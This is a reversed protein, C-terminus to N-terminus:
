DLQQPRTRWVLTLIGAGASFAVAGAAPTDISLLDGDDFMNTSGDDTVVLGTQEGLDSTGAETLTGTAVVTSAGKLVRLTRSAGSGVGATTVTFRAVELFRRFGPVLDTLFEAAGTGAPINILYNEVTRIWAGPGGAERPM